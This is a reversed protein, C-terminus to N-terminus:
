VSAQRFQMIPFVSRPLSASWHKILRGALPFGNRSALSRRELLTKAEEAPSKEKAAEILQGARQKPLLALITLSTAGRKLPMSRGREYSTLIEAGQMREDFVFNVRRGYLRALTTVAPVETEAILNRLMYPGIRVLPDTLRIMRDFAAGLRHQAQNGPEIFGEVTLERITHYITIHLVGLAEGIEAVIWDPKDADFLRLISTHRRLGRM